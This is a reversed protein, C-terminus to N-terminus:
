LGHERALSEVAAKADALSAGTRERYAKVAHIKRGHRLHELVDPLVASRDPEPVEIQLHHLLADLKRELRALREGDLARNRAAAARTSASALILLILLAAIPLLTVLIPFLDSM